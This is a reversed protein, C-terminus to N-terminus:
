RRDTECADPRFPFQRFWGSAAAHHLLQIPPEQRFLQAHQCPVTLHQQFTHLQYTRWWNLLGAWPAATSVPAPKGGRHLEGAFKPLGRRRWFQRYRRQGHVPLKSFAATAAAVMARLIASSVAIILQERIVDAGNGAPLTPCSAIICRPRFFRAAATPPIEPSPAIISCAVSAAAATWPWM